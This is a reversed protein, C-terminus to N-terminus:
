QIGQKKKLSAEQIAKFRVEADALFQEQTKFRVGSM